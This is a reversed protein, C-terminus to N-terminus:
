HHAGEGQAVEISSHLDSTADLTAAGSAILCALLAAAAARGVRPRATNRGLLAAVRRPVPGAAAALAVRPRPNPSR